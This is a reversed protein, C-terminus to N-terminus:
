SPRATTPALEPARYASDLLAGYRELVARRKLKLTPTLLGNDVTFDERVLVVDRPKEFGKFAQGHREMEDLLLARVREDRTLDEDLTIHREGAWVRVAAENPVVLAINFPKGDGYLMVNAVYPSGKLEEELPSPMVYKGNELKYQEKIRGTVYLFGDDDIYGLDGTRLGGDNTFAKANEEPRNHYGVMVNPGYVIIEGEGARTGQAQDIVVRVGPLIRGVSGLRRSGPYNVAVIPSTETLGYGEYVTLGIADIFEGVERGLPASASIAYKLRGGFKARIKAFVLKDDILLDLREVPGIPDGHARKVAGRIGTRIMRRLLAPRSEISLNVSEYIRNFIRPVAVLITPKIQGINEVLNPLADNIAISAGMSPLAFIEAIQGYSHAWPLFALSRDEPDFTFAQHLASVNSAINEHSLLVGKPKGTTGSTYVYNAISRPDPSAPLVSRGEALLAHWSDPDSAPRELGIVHEVRPLSGRMSQIARDVTENATVVVQAECDGLIFRWEEPLQAQYMPVYSAELGYTAFALAVWELRNDSIIAVRSGKRVGRAALGARARAVLAHLEAYSTWAWAGHTKTGYLPRSAYKASSREHLDVLNQFTEAVARRRANERRACGAGCTQLLLM